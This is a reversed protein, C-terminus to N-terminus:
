QDGDEQDPSLRALYGNMWDRFHDGSMNIYGRENVLEATLREVDLPPAAPVAESRYCRWGTHKGKAPGNGFRCEPHPETATCPAAPVPRYDENVLPSRQIDSGYKRPEAPVPPPTALAANLGAQAKALGCSCQDGPTWRYGGGTAESKGETIVTCHKHHKVWADLMYLAARVAEDQEPREPTPTPDPM